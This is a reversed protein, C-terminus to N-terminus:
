MLDCLAQVGIGTGFHDLINDKFYLDQAKNFGACGDLVVVANLGLDHADRLTSEVCVHTAFGFLLITDIKNNRLFPDLTSNKLVSAGSRGKVVFENEQPVFPPHFAASEGTWTGAAPIAARLGSVRKGQGFLLYGPDDRLDLGAHVITWGSERAKKLAQGANRVAARFNDKDQILKGFLQGDEAVWEHQFEIFVLATKSKEISVLRNMFLGKLITIMTIINFPM